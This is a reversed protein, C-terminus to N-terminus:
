KVKICRISMKTAKSASKYLLDSCYYAIEVATMEGEASGASKTWYCASLLLRKYLGDAPDYYGGAPASFSILSGPIGACGTLWTSLDSSKLSSVSGGAAAVLAEFDEKTPLTWGAPCAGSVSSAKTPQPEGAADYWNYLLGFQDVYSEDDKFPSASSLGTEARLNEAFWCDSGVKIIPYEYGDYTLSTIEVVNIHYLVSDCSGDFTTITFEDTTPETYEREISTNAVTFTHPFHCVQITTDITIPTNITLYLTVVSDCGNAMPFAHTYEGSETINAYEYWNFSECEVATTDSTVGHKITLYLTVVSDCGNALPFTHTYEGSETLNAFEYWDFSNCEVATTDSVINHNITLNLTVISDCGNANAGAFTHTLNSCSETINLHEYWDFSECAIATTDGMTPQNVTVTFSGETTTTCSVEGETLTAAATVIYNGSENVITSEGIADNSWAYTIDGNNGNVSATLTTSEGQCIYMDGYISLTGVVPNLITLHLTVISDCGNAMPFVHTYNGSETINAYEYWDFTNCEVAITDSIANHNITLNLTVISDCGNVNAGAFTHTLNNCSETINLHEYWDFSECATQVDVGTTPMNVTVTFTEEATATCTVNDATLSATAIVGYENTEMPNVNISAGTEQTSWVFTVDGNNGEVSASLETTEGQCITNDGSITLTGVNPKLITLHLTVISDVGNAATFTHTLNDCSETINFYEYWDFTECAVATTDNTVNQNVTLVLTDTSPCGFENTYDFTVIGSTSYTEGHWIYSNIATVTEVNHTGHNITLNLTVISDCGNINAGALTHTLNSCSETINLHDYWDFSECATQVDIGTTPMNVTVTFTEETTATCTVDNATLTATAIVGYENTETPNVTISEGTEQTNWIYTMNGNNGDVSATLETSEGQCVANDGSITLTGVNPKLITLNLVVISDAGNVAQLTVTPTNTSETYTVGNIWTFANCATQNDITTSAELITLVLTDTSPCGFENTYDFTAIGSTSYTEGHWIYSNNATVTEVNHTGHNITLNLTVISDCGNINAGALTHTLNSCSETINLHEYWDFSECATQVDIGTTPMNVTVTFTEETTATCTVDNATLTATAIVGYENTETPNVTISEGTEQTNWIYTMNGNNGDVSATLETSEGQCVANDGSITLTGVNPKLITLNLVVISDAGNVAQLTVTPTNTSETYTVGNIWTFANCATQNDITTSAELITLVLTDTSPCGFENTYDFTAIGSTSYTEGHWIYSNNATVTEVNHTGHNITLYLTDTSECGDNNNYDYTYTGSTTYTNGHWEYSECATETEANYTGHNITLHLTVTSDAGNQDTYTRVYDGSATYTQGDWEYSECASASFENSSSYFVTLHLTDVQECGNADLHSYLYNGSANYTQGNGNTWVFSDYATVTYAQHQPNYITLHLTDTSECGDNNNYDYTYTGSTTYTNGHWVYNECATMTEANYTGHNITLHLTVTSDAGNQDTYTRVYDGSATYTQGDWEYSECASASFENSSSYFVTLHLTDVQECGNADLHSYLYNGSANYTQGNGNTWVFSDYATETYAQHQPNNITLHLTDTSECGDNNNYDYTYTGSTTYTNGHWEYSECATMTEANHTGHNITLYLTDTSECGNNNTYDYTYTGSTTYTTGHWEYSECATMTEANHTGHNITLHLTVTSDAGNQDTYTREYDGSATYTQGDWEYSECASASFENSSSYFVTLHLTDVQECGNADLHSYLYNGSANYTQGNGDTWVFSDYATETYAQHQPNYITLNLTVISDCGNVNAGAFTHTYEGSETINQGYWDFSECATATTDGATPTNVTVSVNKTDTATCNSITAIATVIYEGGQESTINNITISQQESTFDNPGTWSFSVTGNPVGSLTANLTVNEGECVTNDYIDALAVAPTNVTVNATATMSCHTAPDTVTLTYAGNMNANAEAITPNQESSTFGNPGTWSYTANATSSSGTLQLTEGACPTNAAATADVTSGTTIVTVATTNSCGNANQVTITYQGADLGSFVNATQFDTGNISYTLGDAANTVVISGNPEDCSTNDTATLSPAAPLALTTVTATTSNQCNNNDTVVVTYEGSQTVSISQNTSQNNWMYAYGETATLTTSGGQCFETTGTIEVEPLANVTVYVTQNTTATCNDVTTTAFVTYSTNETPSVTIANGTADNSWGYTVDGNSGSVSATLTTSEGQCLSTNGSVTITGAVPTNVTVNVSSTMSCQTVPDTVTLTYLGNMEESANELIPNQAESIFGNPGTWSFIAGETETEATLMLDDGACPTNASPTANVTSNETDVTATISNTCGNSNQVTITYTGAPLNSYLPNDQFNGNNLSFTCDDCGDVMVFISGNPEACSTNATMDFIPSAPRALMNVTVTVTSQCNNVDTVTVTYEGGQTVTISPTTEGAETSWLYSSFGESATLTTSGGECFSPEGTVSALAPLNVNVFVTSTESCQTTPETVVVTYEGMMNTGIEAVTPNQENSNFDNPGTWAYTAGEINPTVTLHLDDGLCPTNASATVNFVVQAFNLTTSASNTCGNGDQVTVTYSGAGLGNFVPDSQFEENDITYTYSEGPNTVTISGNPEGCSTNDQKSLEPAAPLALMDVHVTATNQCNNDDLVTVSYDGSQTVTISQGDSDDNWSYLYGVPATLTTSGNECFTTEGTIEVEPIPNITLHLIVVSDVGSETEFSHEYDGSENYTNNEWTYSGCGSEWIENVVSQMLTLHLTVISDCGNSAAAPFTMTYNGSETYTVGNWEYSNVANDVTIETEVPAAIDDVWIGELTSQCGNGDLVTLNYEESELGNFVPSAQFEEGDISYLYDDGLPETVTISGNFEGCNTNDTAVVEPEAPPNSYTVEISGSNQCGNGDTVTVSYTGAVSVTINPNTNNNNWIYNNYTEEVGITTNSGQCLSPTGTFTIVPLDYVTITGSVSATGCESNNSVTYDYTGPTSVTGTIFGNALSLGEPLGTASLLGNQGDVLISLTAGPCVSPNIAAQAISVTPLPRVIVSVNATSTCGTATETVTLTYVGELNATANSITPNQNESIFDNPGTWEFTADATSASGTLILDGGACPNNAQAQATVTSGTSGVSVEKTSTCGAANKVTVTYTGASLESFVTSSQFETGNISYTFNTGTPANVTISGNYPALCSSNSVTSVNPVAPSGQAIITASTSNTCGNDGTVTVSYTIQGAHDPTINHIANTSNDEWVCSVFDGEATITETNGQCLTEPATISVNPKTKIIVTGEATAAGCQNNSIATVTFTGGTAPSGTITGTNNNVGSFHLGNTLISANSNGCNTTTVTIPSIDEDECVEITSNSLTVTPLPKVTIAGNTQANGCNTSTTVSIPFTGVVTPNGTIQGTTNDFSLGDPLGEVVTTNNFPSVSLGEVAANQCVSFSSPSLTVTPTPTVTVTGTDSVTGCSSSTVMVYYTHSGTTPSGSIQGDSYSLGTGNLGSVNINGGSYDVTITTFESSNCLTQNKNNSLTVSPGPTLTVTCQATATGCNTSSTSITITGAETPIGSIEGTEPNYSLGDPLTPIVNGGSTTAIVPTIASGVCASVSNLSLTATPLPNVTITGSASAPTCGYPSVVTITYEGTSNPTGSIVGNNTNFSLGLETINSGTASGNNITATINNIANGSCVTQSSNTSLTITPLPNVTVTATATASCGNSATGTVTYTGTATPHVTATNGLGGSWSYSNAGSATVTIDEDECATYVGGNNLTITPLEPPTFQIFYDFTSNDNHKVHITAKYGNEASAQTVTFETILKSKPTANVQPIDTCSITNPYTWTSTGSNNFSPNGLNDYTRSPEHTLWEAANFVALAASSAVGDITVTALGKDYIFYLDDMIFEDGTNGNGASQSTSPSALLYEPRSITNYNNDGNNAFNTTNYTLVSVGRAWNGNSTPFLPTAQFIINETPSLDGNAKDYFPLGIHGFVKIMPKVSPSTWNTQYYMSLSDPCGVFPFNFKGNGFSTYSTNNNNDYNYNAADGANLMNGVYTVGTTMTGNAKVGVISHVVLGISYNGSHVKNSNYSYTGNPTLTNSSGYRIHHNARGAALNIEDFTHWFTPVYNYGPYSCPSFLSEGACSASHVDWHEFGPNPFQTNAQTITQGMATGAMLFLLACMFTLHKKM